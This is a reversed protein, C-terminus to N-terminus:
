STDALAARAKFFLAAPYEPDMVYIRELHM